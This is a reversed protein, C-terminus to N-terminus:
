KIKRVIEGDEYIEQGVINGEEDYSTALGQAIVNDDYNWELKLQGNPYWEKWTHLGNDSYASSLREHAIQNDPHFYRTAVLKRNKYEFEGRSEIGTHPNLGNTTILTLVGDQYTYELVLTNDKKSLIQRTGSFPEGNESFLIKPDDGQNLNTNIFLDTDSYVYANPLHETKEFGEPISEVCFLFSIFSILPLMFVPKSYGKTKSFRKSTMQLRKRTLSYNLKSSLRNM